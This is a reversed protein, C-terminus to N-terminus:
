TATNASLFDYLFWQFVFVAMAAASVGREAAKQRAESVFKAWHKDWEGDRVVRELHDADLVDSM